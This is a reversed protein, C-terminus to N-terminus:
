FSINISVRWNEGDTPIKELNKELLMGSQHMIKIEPKTLIDKELAPIVHNVGSYGFLIIIVLNTILTM